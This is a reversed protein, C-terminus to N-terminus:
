EALLAPPSCAALEQALRDLERALDLPKEDTVPFEKLGTGTFEYREDWLTKRVRAGEQGVHDGGKPYFVQKM